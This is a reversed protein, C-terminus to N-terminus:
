IVTAGKNFEVSVSDSETDCKLHPGEIWDHLGFCGDHGLRGQQGELPGGLGVSQYSFVISLFAAFLGIVLM